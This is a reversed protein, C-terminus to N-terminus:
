AESASHCPAPDCCRQNPHRKCKGHEGSEGLCRISRAKLHNRGMLSAQQSSPSPPVEPMRFLSRDARTSYSATAKKSHDREKLGMNWSLVPAGVRLAGTKHPPYHSEGGLQFLTWRVSKGRGLPRDSEELGMRWSLVLAGWESHEQKIPHIIPSSGVIKLAM